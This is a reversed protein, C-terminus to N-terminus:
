CWARAAQLQSTGLCVRQKGARKRARATGAVECLPRWRSAKWSSWDKQALRVKGVEESSRNGEKAFKLDKEVPPAQSM